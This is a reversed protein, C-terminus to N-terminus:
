TEGTHVENPDMFATIPDNVFAFWRLSDATGTSRHAIGEPVNMVDGPKMVYEGYETEITTTGAFQFYITDFDVHRRFYPQVGVVSEVGIRHDANELIIRSVNPVPLMDFPRFLPVFDTSHGSGMLNAKNRTAWAEIGARPSSHWTTMFEKSQIIDTM